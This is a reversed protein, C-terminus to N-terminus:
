LSQTPNRACPFGHFDRVFAALGAVGCSRAGIIQRLMDDPMEAPWQVKAGWMHRWAEVGPVVAEEEAM